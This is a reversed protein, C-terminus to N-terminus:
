IYRHKLRRSRLNTLIEYPITSTHKAWDYASFSDNLLIVEADIEPKIKTYAMIHDMTVNGAHIAKIGNIEIELKNNLSRPIGDAYGMPIVSIYGRDPVKFTLDYGVGEGKEIPKVLAIKSKLHLAPNLNENKRGTPTYGYLGIGTRIMDFRSEPYYLAGGTNAVHIIKNEIDPVVSLSEKFLALQKYVFESGPEGSTALHTSVSLVSIHDYNGSRLKDWLQYWDILDLGNRKMGSDLQVHVNIPSHFLDLDNINSIVPEIHYRYYIDKNSHDIPSFVMIPKDIGANRLEVAENLVAVGFYRVINSLVRAVAVAGHSYADAKIVAMQDTKSHINRLYAANDKIRQLNIILNNM